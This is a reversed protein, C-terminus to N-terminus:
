LEDVESPFAFGRTDVAIIKGGEVFTGNVPNLLAGGTVVYLTETDGPLKGFAVSVPGPLVAEDSAGLVAIPEGRPPVAVLQNNANSAVWITDRDDPGFTVGDLFVARVHRVEEVRAGPAARGEGTMKFRYFTGLFANAYYIYGDHVHASNMGFAIPAWAPPNMTDDHMVKEYAGSLVDVRWIIGAKTDAVLYKNPHGPIPEIHVCFSANTMPVRKTVIPRDIGRRLDLEYVSHTGNVGAGLTTQNGGVFLFVDPTQTGTIAAILNIYDLEVLRTV